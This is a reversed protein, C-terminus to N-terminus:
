LSEFDPQQRQAVLAPDNIAEIMALFSDPDFDVGDFNPPTDLDLPGSGMSPQTAPQDDWRLPAWGESTHILVGEGDPMYDLGLVETMWLDCLTLCASASWEHLPWTAIGRM